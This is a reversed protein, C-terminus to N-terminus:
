LTRIIIEWVLHPATFACYAESKAVEALKGVAQVCDKVKDQIYKNKYQNTDICVGSNRRGESIINISIDFFIRTDAKVTLWKKKRNPYYAVRHGHKIFREM